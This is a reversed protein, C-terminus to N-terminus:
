LNYPYNIKGEGQQPSPNFSLKPHSTKTIPL